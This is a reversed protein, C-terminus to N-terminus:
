RLSQQLARVSIAREGHLNGRMGMGILDPKELEKNKGGLPEQSSVSGRLCGARGDRDALDEM